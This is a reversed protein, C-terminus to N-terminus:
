CCNRISKYKSTMFRKLSFASNVSMSLFTMMNSKLWTSSKLYIFILFCFANIKIRLYSLSVYKMIKVHLEFQFFNWRSKSLVTKILFRDFKVTLINWNFNFFNKRFKISRCTSSSILIWVYTMSNWFFFRDWAWKNIMLWKKFSIVFSLTFTTTLVTM